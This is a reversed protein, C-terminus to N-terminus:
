KAYIRYNPRYEVHPKLSSQNVPHLLRCIIGSNLTVHVAVPLGKTAAELLEWRHCSGFALDLDLLRRVMITFILWHPRPSHTKLIYPSFLLVHMIRASLFFSHFFYLLVDWNHSLLRPVFEYLFFRFLIGPLETYIITDRFFVRRYFWKFQFLFKTSPCRLRMACVSMECGASLMVNGDM